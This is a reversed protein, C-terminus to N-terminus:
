KKIEKTKPIYFGEETPLQKIVDLIHHAYFNGELIRTCSKLESSLKEELQYKIDEPVVFVLQVVQHQKQLKQIEGSFYNLFVHLYHEKNHHDHGASFSVEKAEPSSPTTLREFGEYDTYHFDTASTEIPELQEIKNGEAIYAQASNHRLCAILTKGRFHALQQPIQIM